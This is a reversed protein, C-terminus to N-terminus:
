PLSEEEERRRGEGGVVVQIPLREVSLRSVEVAGEVDSWPHLLM